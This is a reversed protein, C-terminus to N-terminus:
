QAADDIVFIDREQAVHAVAPLDSPLGYLNTAVIALVRSGDFTELAARSFDLTAPDIDALRVRLGAKVVSSAVSFCTYSPIIVEDRRGGDLTKLALLALTLAARGTSVFVCHRAGVRKCVEEEFRQLTDADTVAHRISGLVDALSLPTGAPPVFRFGTMMSRGTWTQDGAVPM